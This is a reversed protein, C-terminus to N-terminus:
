LTPSHFEGGLAVLGWPTYQADANFSFHAGAARGDRLMRSLPHHDYIGNAGAMEHLADIAELCLRGALVCNRKYRLKTQVDIAIQTSLIDRAEACDTRLLLRAADIKAGAAGIRLQVTQFDRMKAATYNTSRAKVTEITLDLAARANGVMVGGIGHGGIAGVPVRFLPNSYLKFGPFEPGNRAVHMSLARHEPVFVDKCRVTRSGTARMGITYWDDLVEYEGSRIMCMRYDVPKDNEYVVCALMNWSALEVGSSFNWTGSLEIGGDVKRGRGQAYAIGSAIMADPNEGWIEEQAKIEYLALSRHHAAINTVTWATAADGQALTEPIDFYSVFDLEMGGFRKPQMYRFLGLRHLEAEVEAPMHRTQDGAAARERLFPVLERARRLAEDYSVDAFSRTKPLASM